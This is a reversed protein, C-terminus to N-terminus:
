VFERCSKPLGGGRNPAPQRHMHLVIQELRCYPRSAPARAFLEGNEKVAAM